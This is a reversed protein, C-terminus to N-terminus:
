EETILIVETVVKIPGSMCDTFHSAVPLIALNRNGTPATIKRRAAVTPDGTADM